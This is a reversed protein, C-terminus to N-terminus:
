PGPAGEPISPRAMEASFAVAQRLIRGAERSNVQTGFRKVCTPAHGSVASVGVRSKQTSKELIMSRADARAARMPAARAKCM